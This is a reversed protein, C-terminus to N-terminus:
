QKDERITTVAGIKAPKEVEPVLYLTSVGIHLALDDTGEKHSTIQIDSIRLPKPSTQIRNLFRAISQMSTSGTARITIKQFQKEQEPRDPKLSSLILGSDQAWRQVDNLVQSEAASADSKIGAAVMEKWRPTMRRNNDLLTLAPTLKNDTLLRLQDQVQTRRDLLPTLLFRDLVLASIATIAVIAATRERKSLIV